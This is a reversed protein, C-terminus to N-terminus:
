MISSHAKFLRCVRRDRKFKTYRDPLATLAFLNVLDKAKVKWGGTAEREPIFGGLRQFCM